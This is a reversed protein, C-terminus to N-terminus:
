KKKDKEVERKVTELLIDTMTKAQKLAAMKFAARLDEPIKITITTTKM